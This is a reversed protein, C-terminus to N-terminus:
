PVIQPTGTTQVNNVGVVVRDYVKFTIKSPDSPLSSGGVLQFSFGQVNSIDAGAYNALINRASAPDKGAIESALMNGIQPTWKWRYYGMVDCRYDVATSSVVAIYPNDCSGDLEDFEFNTPARMSAQYKRYALVDSERFLPMSVHAKMSTRYDFDTSQQYGAAPLCVISGQDFTAPYSTSYKGFMEKVDQTNGTAPLKYADIEKNLGQIAEGEAYQVENVCSSPVYYITQPGSTDRAATLGGFPIPPETTPPTFYFVKVFGAVQGTGDIAVRISVNPDILVETSDVTTGSRFHLRKPQILITASSAENPNRTATAATTPSDAVITVAPSPTANWPGSVPSPQGAHAYVQAWYGAVILVVVVTSTLISYRSRLNSGHQHFWARVRARAPEPRMTESNGRYTSDDDNNPNVDM